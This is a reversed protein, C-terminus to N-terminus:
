DESYHRLFKYYCHKDTLQDVPKNSILLIRKDIFNISGLSKNKNLAKIKNINGSYSCCLVEGMM